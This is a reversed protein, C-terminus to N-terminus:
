KAPLNIMNNGGDPVVIFQSKSLADIYRQRLIPETLSAALKSNAQAEAEAQVIKQQANITATELEAKAKDNDIRAAQAQSYRDTVSKDYRIEQPAVSDVIIGKGAWKENLAAILSAALKDRNTLLELTGFESPVTRTVSRVDQEILRSKFNDQNQYKTFIGTVADPQISYTIAVDLNGTAGDKDTFTIQPGNAKQGNYSSEGNGIFAVLNNTIDFDVTDVFPSKLALGTTTDQGVVNGTWDKLVKAEGAQQTYSMSLFMFLATLLALLGAIGRMVVNPTKNQRGYETFKLKFGLVTLVVAAIGLIIALIFM